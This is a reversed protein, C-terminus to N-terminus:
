QFLSGVSAPISQEPDVTAILFDRRPLSTLPRRLLDRLVPVRLIQRGPRPRPVVGLRPGLGRGVDRQIIVVQISEPFRIARISLVLAVRSPWQGLQIEAVTARPHLPEGQGLARGEDALPEILDRRQSSVVPSPYQGGFAARPEDILDDLGRGGGEAERELHADNRSGGERPDSLNRLFGCLPLDQSPLLDPEQHLRGVPVADLGNTSLFIV